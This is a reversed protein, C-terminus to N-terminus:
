PRVEPPSPPALARLVFELWTRRAQELARPGRMGTLRGGLSPFLDLIELHMRLIFFTTLLPDLDKRVEGSAMGQCLIQSVPTAIRRLHHEVANRVSDTGQAVQGRLLTRFGLDEGLHRRFTELVAWLRTELNGPGPDAALRELDAGLPPLRRDVLALFLAEKNAFHYYILAPDCGARRAIARLSGGELGSRSFVEQAADLIAGTAM